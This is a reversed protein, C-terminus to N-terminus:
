REDREGTDRHIVVDTRRALARREDPPLEAAIDDFRSHGLGRVAVPREYGSREILEAVALARSLSLEWNSAVGAQPPRPDAHGIVEIRNEIRGLTEALTFAARRGEADLEAGGPLFLLRSPLAVVLRDERRLVETKGLTPLGDLARGLVGALYDLDIGPLRQVRELGEREQSRILTAEPPKGEHAILSGTLAQWREQDLESMAFLMVLFAILLAVLDVFTVLWLSRSGSPGTAPGADQPFGIM